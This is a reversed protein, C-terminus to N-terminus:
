FNALLIPRLTKEVTLVIQMRSRRLLTDGSYILNRLWICVPTKMECAGTLGCWRLCLPPLPNSGTLDSESSFSILLTEM